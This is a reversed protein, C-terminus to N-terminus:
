DPKGQVCLAFKFSTIIDEGDTIRVQAPIEGAEELAATTLEFTATSLNDATGVTGSNYIEGNSKRVYIAAAAGSPIILDSFVMTLRRGTDGQVAPVKLPTQMQTVSVVIYTDSNM